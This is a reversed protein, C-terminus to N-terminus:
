PSIIRLFEEETWACGSLDNCADRLRTSIDDLSTINWDESSTPSSHLSHSDQLKLPPPTSTYLIPTPTNFSISALPLGGLRKRRCPVVQDSSPAVKASISNTRAPTCLGNLRSYASNRYRDRFSITPPGFTVPSDTTVTVDVPSFSLRLGATSEQSARADYMAFDFLDPYPLLSSRTGEDKSFISSVLPPSNTFLPVPVMSAPAAYSPPDYFFDRVASHANPTRQIPEFSLNIKEARLPPSQVIPSSINM